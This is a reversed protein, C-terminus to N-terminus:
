PVVPPTYGLTYSFGTLLALTLPALFLLQLFTFGVLHRARLSLIGLLPLMWFPNILNPLSEAVNYVQVTWGLHAELENAADMVYPAEILWKGGGSPIFLGLVASYVAVVLTFPVASSLSTFAQTVYDAVSNDSANTARTMVAAIAAYIPFQILVGSTAPVAKGVSNLFSRPRWHLLMGLMLFLLNYTNLGSIAVIPDEDAFTQVAWGVGLAVVLVTLLPSYELWEGPRSRPPLGEEPTDLEVGLDQARRVQGGRPASFFAVTVVVVILIAAVLISQWLFITDRFPIVGTIPMLGSPISDPNAQLQAASSSLGLAWVSGMGMFAAAGAARYDVDLEDRRALQRALLGAFILSFGWNFLSSVTSATAVLAVAGPGTRPLSAVRVILRSAVPATAVVYGGIAVFAMQMTFPILDWFGDGFERTVTAPSAGIALASVTVVVLAILAFVFAEPFWRESFNSMRVALRSLAKADDGGTGDASPETRAKSTQM